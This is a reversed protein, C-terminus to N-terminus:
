LMNQLEEKLYALRDADEEGLKDPSLEGSIKKRLRKLENELDILNNLMMNKVDPAPTKEESKEFSMERSKLILREKWQPVHVELQFKEKLKLALTMSAESEGHIVFVKPSSEFHSAWELLDKQDAHASFGGITFIKANVSVNERFIKM